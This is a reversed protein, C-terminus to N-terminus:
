INYFLPLRQFVHASEYEQYEETRELKEVNSRGILILIYSFLSVFLLTQMIIPLYFVNYCLQILAIIYNQM